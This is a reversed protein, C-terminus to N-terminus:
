LYPFHGMKIRDPTSRPKTMGHDDSDAPSTSDLQHLFRTDGLVENRHHNREDLEGFADDAGLEDLPQAKPEEMEAKVSADQAKRM